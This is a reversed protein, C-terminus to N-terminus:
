SQMHLYLGRCAVAHISLSLLFWRYMGEASGWEQNWWLRCPSCDHCSSAAVTMYPYKWTRGECWRQIKLGLIGLELLVPGVEPPCDGLDEGCIMMNSATQIAKLNKLGNERLANSPSYCGPGGTKPIEWMRFFGLIHDIRYAHFYQEMHELRRRWRNCMAWMCCMACMCCMADGIARLACVACLM